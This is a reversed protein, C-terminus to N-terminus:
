KFSVGKLRIMGDAYPEFGQVKNSTAFPWPQYYLYVAPLEDQLIAQAADYIARRQDVDSVTRAKDLLEDVKPNCYKGDNLTGKCTVFAYINGDPDIRGSWGRMDLQFDGQTAATQMTAYETPRLSLRFGAQSVMAQVMQATSSELTNNGFTLEAEVTEQGADKLLAKARAIDPEQIPFRESHYPSAPPFPQQAPPFIGGGIIENIANRDIALQFAQRVRKDNFPNSTAREGNGVNFVFRRYGLGVVPKFSLTADNKVYTVDTPNLRELIDIEGSRLNSLRVTSDPMNIYEVQKFAFNSADYHGDFKELVIRDNQIRKVFKYPGSCVPKRGIASDSDKAGFSAPSLMMGARDSLQSLLSADPKELTITLTMDDPADVRTVSALESKRQSAPLTIARELNAKAAQADFKTGDHFVVGDRLKLTLKTNGESWAWTTALGPVFNLKADIDMLKDCLSTLVIRAVYTRSRHPDLTDPDEQMGIRLVQAHSAAATGLLLGGLILTFRRM